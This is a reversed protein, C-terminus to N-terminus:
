HASHLFLYGLACALLVWGTVAAAKWKEMESMAYSPKSDVTGQYNLHEVTTKIGTPKGDIFYHELRQRM